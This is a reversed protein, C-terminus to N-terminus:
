KMASYIQMANISIKGLNFFMFFTIKNATTAKVAIITIVEQPADLRPVPQGIVSFIM